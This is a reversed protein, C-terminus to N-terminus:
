SDRRAGRSSSGAKGAPSFVAVESVNSVAFVCSPGPVISQLTFEAYSVPVTQAARPGESPALRQVIGALNEGRKSAAIGNCEGLVWKVNGCTFLRQASKIKGLRSAGM